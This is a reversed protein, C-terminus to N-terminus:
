KGVNRSKVKRKRKQSMKLNKKKRIVSLAVKCLHKGKPKWGRREAWCNKM